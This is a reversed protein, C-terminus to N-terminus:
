DEEEVWFLFAHTADYGIVGCEFTANTLLTRWGRAAGEQLLSNSLFVADDALDGLAKYADQVYGTRPSFPGHALSTTGALALVDAAQKRTLSALSGTSLDADSTPYGVQAAILAPMQRARGDPRPGTWWRAVKHRAFRNLLKELTEM